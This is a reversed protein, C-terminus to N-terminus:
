NWTILNRNPHIWDETKDFLLDWATRETLKFHATLTMGKKVFGKTGNRLCLHNEKMLCRIKFLPHHDRYIIDNGIEVVKGSLLGWQNSNYAHIQLKVHQDDQILGIDTPSVYCEAYLTDDASIEAISIGPAIFSGFTQARLNLINGNIPATVVYNQKLQLLENEKEVLERFREQKEYRELQWNNLQKKRFEQLARESKKLVYIAKEYEARALVNRRYLGSDRKYDMLSKKKVSQYELLQQKYHTIASQFNETILSEEDATNSSLVHQLDRLLAAIEKRQTRCKELQADIGNNEIILLTDGKKVYQNDTMRSEQIRGRVIVTIPYRESKPKIIGPSSNYVAIKM